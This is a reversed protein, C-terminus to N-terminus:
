STRKADPVELLMCICMISIGSMSARIHRSMVLCFCVWLFLCVSLYLCVCKYVWVCLSFRVEYVCAWVCFVGNVQGGLGFGVFFVVCLSVSVCVCMCVYFMFRCVYEIAPPPTTDFAPSSVPCM